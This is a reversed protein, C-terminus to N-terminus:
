DEKDDEKGKGKEEDKTGTYEISICDEDDGYRGRNVRYRKIWQKTDFNDPFIANGNAWVSRLWSENDRASSRIEISIKNGKNTHNMNSDVVSLLSQISFPYVMGYSSTYILLQKMNPFLKFVTGNLVNQTGGKTAVQDADEVVSHLVLGNLKNSEGLSPLNIAIQTKNECFLHFAKLIYAPLKCQDTPALEETILANLAVIDRKSWSEEMRAGSLMSDLYFLAHYFPYFNMKTKMDKVSEIQMRYTGGMFLREDEEHFNSIWSCDFGRLSPTVTNNLQMIIGKAGCFRVAVAFQQSASTPSCLRCVFNAVVMYTMGCYWPGSFGDDYGSLGYLQVTERLIKSLFWYKQNRKKIEALSESAFIPRFTSSFDTCLKSFDCYLILAILNQISLPTGPAIGYHLTPFRSEASKFSKAKKTNIYEEAKVMIVDNLTKLPVHGYNLIEEKFSSFKPAVFLEYIDYGGHDNDNGPRVEDEPISRMAKYYGWYYFILGINFSGSSSKEQPKDESVDGKQDDSDDKGGASCDINFKNSEFRKFERKQAEYNIERLQKDIYDDAANDDDNDAEDADKDHSRRVRLGTEFCHFFHFHLGDFIDLYLALKADSPRTNQDRMHRTTFECKMIDCDGVKSEMLDKNIRQLEHEHHEKFHIYDDILGGHYVDRMFAMFIDDDSKGNGVDLKSRYMSSAFLRKMTNCKTYDSPYCENKEYSFASLDIADM